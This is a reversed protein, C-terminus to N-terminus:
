EESSYDSLFFFDSVKKRQKKKGKELKTEFIEENLEDSDSIFFNSVDHNNETLFQSSRKHQMHKKNNRDEMFVKPSANINSKLLYHAM